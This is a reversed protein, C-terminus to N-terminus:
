QLSLLVMIEGNGSDLPELAKGILTGPRHMKIGNIDIAVSKMAVGPDPSSVLLDGIQIPNIDANVKVKVRGVTAVKVKDDGKEGLVIGPTSSVVGAVRTDYAVTSPLVHGPISPHTIVVSGPEIDNSAPVWEALDQYKAAINGDIVVNGAVQLKAQPYTIGIGVNGNNLFTVREMQGSIPDGPASTNEDNTFFQLRGDTNLRIFSSQGQTRYEWRSDAGDWYSNFGIYAPSGLELHTGKIVGSVDLKQVPNTKGLGVNKTNSQITLITQLEVANSFNGQNNIDISGFSEIKFKVTNGSSEGPSYNDWTAFLYAFGNTTPDVYGYFKLRDSISSEGRYVVVPVYSWDGVIQYVGGDEAWGGTIECLIEIAIVIEYRGLPITLDGTGATTITESYQAYVLECMNLLLIVIGFALIRVKM